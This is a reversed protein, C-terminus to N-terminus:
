NEIKLIINVVGTVDAITISNDGNVDANAMIFVSTPKNLIHDVLTSVDSVNVFGDGNVDGM